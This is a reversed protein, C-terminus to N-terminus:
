PRAFDAEALAKRGIDRRYQMGDFRITEVARYATAMAAEYTPGRGVVTLVRGGATVVRDEVLKTGSHFVLTGPMEAADDLGHIVVGSESSAPYGRSALVVGVLRDAAATLRVTSVDGRAAALLAEAFSGELVPLVVQAEPDGFRVNFEIVQPGAATLMLGVYLFGVFPHGEARMGAIVPEVVRRMVVDSLQADVLPSPAFAGMGGTNPGRDGDWIRKHDQATLLPVARVGDSVVFFSVEPGTLCEEIVLTAGAAGFHRDVIAARVAQEAEEASEAVVVGKGAALGDTKVVVPFGFDSGSVARLAEDATECVVFRATPVGHRAMFRKAFAKSCELAAARQSPGFLPRGAERFADAVGRELLAEPGVVTLDVREREALALMDSPSTVDVPLTRGLSAMGPNGPAAIVEAVGPDRSLRWVLAHERGGGGLVLVRVGTIRAPM